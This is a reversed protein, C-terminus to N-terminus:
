TACRPSPRSASRTSWCTSTGASATDEDLVDDLLGRFGSADTLLDEGHGEVLERVAAHM